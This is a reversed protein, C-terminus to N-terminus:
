GIIPGVKFKERNDQLIDLDLLIAIAFKCGSHGLFKSPGNELRFVILVPDSSLNVIINHQIM